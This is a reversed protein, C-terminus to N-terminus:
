GYPPKSNPRKRKSMDAAILVSVGGRKWEPWRQVEQAREHVANWFEKAKATERPKIRKM